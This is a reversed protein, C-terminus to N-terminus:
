LDVQGDLAAEAGPEDEGQTGPGAHGGRGHVQEVGVEAVPQFPFPGLEDPGDHVRARVPAQVLHVAADADVDEVADGVDAQRQPQPAHVHVDRLVVRGPHPRQAGAPGVADAVQAGPAAHQD